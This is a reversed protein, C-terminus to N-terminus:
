GLRAALYEEWTRRGVAHDPALNVGSRLAHAAAGPIRVPVLLRRRGTARLYGRILEEM